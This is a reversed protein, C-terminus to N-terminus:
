DRKTAPIIGKTSLQSEGSGFNNISFTEFNKIIGIYFLYYLNMNINCFNNLITVTRRICACDQEDYSPIVVSLSFLVEEDMFLKLVTAKRQEFDEENIVERNLYVLIKLHSWLFFRLSKSGSIKYAM